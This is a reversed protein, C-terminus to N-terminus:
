WSPTPWWPHSIKDLARGQRVIRTLRVTDGDILPVGCRCCYVGFYADNQCRHEAIIPDLRSDLTIDFYRHLVAAARLPMVMLTMRKILIM